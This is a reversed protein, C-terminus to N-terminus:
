SELIVEVFDDHEEVQLVRLPRDAPGHLVQGCRDFVSGHCPCVLDGPTVTVTCGLHTCVLSLAYIKGEEQMLACRSDSFVLAGHAPIERRAVRLRHKEAELRPTLFKGLALAGLLTFILGLFGRRAKDPQEM